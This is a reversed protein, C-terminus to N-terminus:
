VFPALAARARKRFVLLVVLFLVVLLGGLLVWPRFAIGRAFPGRHDIGILDPIAAAAAAATFLLAAVYRVVLRARGGRPAPQPQGAHGRHPVRQPEPTIPDLQGPPATM